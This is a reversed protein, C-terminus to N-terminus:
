ADTKIGTAIFESIEGAASEPDALVLIHPGPLRKAQLQPLLKQLPAVARSPVLRDSTAQLYLCPGSYTTDPAPPLEALIKLRNSLVTLKVSSLANHFIGLAAKSAGGLCFFRSLLTTSFLKLLLGQPLYRSLDLLFPSPYSAFTAVFIVGILNGPPAALLQLAIPGSFSEALLVFPKETPLKQRAVEIHQQFSIPRDTPYHVVTPAIGAPLLQLLPEFVRGTGDLGPLMVLIIPEGTM